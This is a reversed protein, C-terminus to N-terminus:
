VHNKPYYAAISVVRSIYDAIMLDMHAGGGNKFVTIEADSTRASKTGISADDNNTLDYFDGKIDTEQIVGAALPMMLEGIHHLTTERSDVYISGKSILADDAERMDAKYAGILDIHTGPSIWEGKLVPERAMTASSIIDSQAAAEALNEAVVLNVNLDALRAVMNAAQDARRAWVSIKELSPFMEHYARVLSEAVIGAGVILLKKSDTRALLQAGLISDAATKLETVLKSDIIASLAGDVPDYVMMGGQITPLGKNANADMVTVAKVGYGLGDIYAARSLLTAAKPGLFLDGIQAKPLNHGERIAAVAGAWTVLHIASDYTIYNASM